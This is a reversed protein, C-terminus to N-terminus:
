YVVEGTALTWAAAQRTIFRPFQPPNAHSARDLTVPVWGAKSTTRGREDTIEDALYVEGVHRLRYSDGGAVHVQAYGASINTFKLMM